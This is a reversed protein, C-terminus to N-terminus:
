REGLREAIAVLARAIAALLTEESNRPLGYEFARDILSLTADLHDVKPARHDHPDSPTFDAIERGIDALSWCFYSPEYEGCVPCPRWVTWHGDFYSFRFGGSFAFGDEVRDPEHGFLDTFKERIREGKLELDHQHIAENEAEQARHAELAAQIAPTLNPTETTSNM